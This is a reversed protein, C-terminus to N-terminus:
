VPSVSAGSFSGSSGPCWNCKNGSIISCYIHDAKDNFDCIPDCWTGCGGDEKAVIVNVGVFGNFATTASSL